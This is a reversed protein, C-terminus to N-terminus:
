YRDDASYVKACVSYQGRIMSPLPLDIMAWETRATAEVEAGEARPPERAVDAPDYVRANIRVRLWDGEPFPSQGAAIRFKARIGLGNSLLEVVRSEIGVREPFGTGPASAM